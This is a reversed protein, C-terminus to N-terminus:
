SLIRYMGQHMYMAYSLKIQNWDFNSKKFSKLLQEFIQGFFTKHLLNSSIEVFIKQTILMKFFLGIKSFFCLSYGMTKGFFPESIVGFKLKMKQYM